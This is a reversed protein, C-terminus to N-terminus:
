ARDRMGPPANLFSVEVSHMTDGGGADAPGRDRAGASASRAATSPYTDSVRTISIRILAAPAGAAGRPSVESQDDPAPIALMM